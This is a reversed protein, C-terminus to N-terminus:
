RKTQKAIPIPKEPVTRNITTYQQIVASIPSMSKFVMSGVDIQYPTICVCRLLIRDVKSKIVFVINVM